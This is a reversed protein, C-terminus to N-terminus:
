SLQQFYIQMSFDLFAIAFWFIKFTPSFTASSGRLNGTAFVSQTCFIWYFQWLATRDASFYANSLNFFGTTEARRFHMHALVECVIKDAYLRM